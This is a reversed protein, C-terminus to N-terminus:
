TASGSSTTTCRGSRHPPQPPSRVNAGTTPTSARCTKSRGSTRSHTHSCRASRRGHAQPCTVVPHKRVQCARRRAVAGPDAPQRAVQHHAMVHRDLPGRLYEAIRQAGAHRRPRQRAKRGLGGAPQAPEHLLHALLEGAGLDGVEVLGTGPHRTPQV